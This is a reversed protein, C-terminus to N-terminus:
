SLWSVHGVLLAYGVFAVSDLITHTIILPLVRRTRLYVTGLILGMVINGAFGGFGQYLHYSGRIVASCVIVLPLPWGAQSWRTYLYGVMVVEELIANQAASLLLVPTVWWHSGLDAAVVTTNFGLDRAVVYLALGPLGILAAMGMGWLLDRGPRSADIGLYRTPRAIERALLHIALLAPVVGLAVGVLQYTLALWSQTAQATNLSSTQHNLATTSQLSRIISLISYIASSGLSLLLVLATETVLTRPPLTTPPM